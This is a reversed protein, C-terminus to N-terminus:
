MSQPSTTINKKYSIVYGEYHFTRSVNVIAIVEFSSSEAIRKGKEGITILAREGQLYRQKVASIDQQDLPYIFALPKTVIEAASSYIFLFFCFATTLIRSM